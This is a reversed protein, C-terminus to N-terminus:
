RLHLVLQLLFSNSSQRELRSKTVEIMHSAALAHLGALELNYNFGIWFVCISRGGEGVFEVWHLALRIEYNFGINTFRAIM